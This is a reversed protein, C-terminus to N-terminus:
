FSSHEADQKKPQQKTSPEKHYPEFRSSAAVNSPRDILSSRLQQSHRFLEDQLTAYKKKQLRHSWEAEDHQHPHLAYNQRTEIDFKLIARFNKRIAEDKALTTFHTTWRKISPEDGIDAIWSLYCQFAEQWTLPDLQRENEFQSLDLLHHSVGNVHVKTCKLSHGERHLCETNKNSFLTLPCYEGANALDQFFHHISFNYTSDLRSSSAIEKSSDFLVKSVSSVSPRSSSASPKVTGAISELVAAGQAQSNPSLNVFALIWQQLRNAASPAPPVPLLPKDPVVNLDRADRCAQLAANNALRRANEAIIQDRTLQPVSPTPIGSNNIAATGLPAASSSAAANGSTVSATATTSTM